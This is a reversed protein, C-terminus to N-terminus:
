VVLLLSSAKFTFGVIMQCKRFRSWVFVALFAEVLSLLRAEVRNSGLGSEHLVFVSFPDLILFWSSRYITSFSSM